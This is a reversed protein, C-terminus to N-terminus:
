ALSVPTRVSVAPGAPLWGYEREYTRALGLLDADGHWPAVLQVGVPLGGAVAAPLSIAPHGTLNFSGSNALMTIGRRVRELRSAEPALRHAYHTTTPMLLFDCDRLVQDYTMRMGAAMAHARAGYAGLHSDLLHHGLIAVVKYMDPLEDGRARIAEGLGAKL